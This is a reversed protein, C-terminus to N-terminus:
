RNLVQMSSTFYLAVCVIFIVQLIGEWIYEKRLRLITMPGYYVFHLVLDVLLVMNLTLVVYVWENAFRGDIDETVFLFHSYQACLFTLFIFAFRGLIYYFSSM